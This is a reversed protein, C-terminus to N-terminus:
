KKLGFPRRAIFYYAALAGVGLVGVVLATSAGSSPVPAPPPLKPAIPVTGPLQQTSLPQLGTKAKPYVDRWWTQLDSVSLGMQPHRDSFIEQQFGVQFM